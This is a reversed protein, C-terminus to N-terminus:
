SSVPTIGDVATPPAVHAMEGERGFPSLRAAPVHAMLPVGVAVAVLAVVVTERRGSWWPLSLVNCIWNPLWLIEIPGLTGAGTPVLIFM